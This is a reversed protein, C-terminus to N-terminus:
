YSFTQPCNLIKTEIVVVRIYFSIGKLSIQVKLLNKNKNLYECVAKEIKYKYSDDLLSTQFHDDNKVDKMKLFLFSM